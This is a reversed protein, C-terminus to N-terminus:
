VLKATEVGTSSQDGRKVGEELLGALENLDRALDQFVDGERLSVRAAYDGNKLAEVHRRFAIIPGLIRKLYAVSLAVVVLGYALSAVALVSALDRAMRRLSVGLHPPLEAVALSYARLFGSWAM